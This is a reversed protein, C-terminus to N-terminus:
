GKCGQLKFTVQACIKDPAGGQVKVVEVERTAWGKPDSACLPSSCVDMGVYRAEHCTM